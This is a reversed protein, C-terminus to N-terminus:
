SPRGDRDQLSTGGTPCSITAVQVNTYNAQQDTPVDEFYSADVKPGFMICAISLAGGPAGYLPPAPYNYAHYVSQCEGTNGFGYCQELCTLMQDAQSGAADPELYYSYISPPSQLSATTPRVPVVPPCSEASTCVLPYNITCNSPIPTVSPGGARKSLFEPINLPFGVALGLALSLAFFSQM